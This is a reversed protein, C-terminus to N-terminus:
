KDKNTIAENSNGNLLEDKKYIFIPNNERLFDISRAEYNNNMNGANDANNRKGKQENNVVKEKEKINNEEKDSIKVIIKDIIIEFPIMKCIISIIFTIFSFGLSYLWQNWSLGREVVHLAENGFEIIIAQLGM